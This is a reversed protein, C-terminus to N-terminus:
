ESDSGIYSRDTGIIIKLSTAVIGLAMGIMIARQGATNFVQLCMTSIGPITLGSLSPPLWATLIYGAYTQGLLVIFATGLLLSAETNKARFARFAASAVFFALLAFMASGLPNLAFQYMWWYGSGEDDYKGSWAANPFEEAPSVHFKTLGFGLTLLFSILLVAAYGWGPKRESIKKLNLKILNGGGLVYAFAALLNFWAGLENGVSELRPSFYAIMVIIGGLSTMLMPITKKFM